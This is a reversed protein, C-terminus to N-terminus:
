KSRGHVPNILTGVAGRTEHLIERGVFVREWASWRRFFVQMYLIRLIRIYIIYKQRTKIIKQGLVFSLLWIYWGLKKTQKQSQPFGACVDPLSHCDIRWLGCVALLGDARRQRHLLCNYVIKKKYDISKDVRYRRDRVGTGGQIYIYKHVLYIYRSNMGFFRWSCNLDGM